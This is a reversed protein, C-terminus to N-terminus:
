RPLIITFTSGQGPQSTVKIDGGHELIIRRCISLGLGTGTEKTTYFAEFIQQQTQEDMGCGTDTIEIRASDPHESITVTLKGNASMAQFANRCINIMVEKLNELCGNIYIPHDPLSSIISIKLLLSEGYLFALVDSVLRVADLQVFPKDHPRSLTLFDSVILNIHDIESSILTCYESVSLTSRREVRSHILQAFGKIATLPNRIEHVTGAAIQGIAALTELHQVRREREREKNLNKFIGIAGSIKGHENYFPAVTYEINVNFCDLSITTKQLQRAIGYRVAQYFSIEDASSLRCAQWATSINLGTITTRSIGFLEEAGKNFIKVCCNSDVIIVGAPVADWILDASYVALYDSVCIGGYHPSKVSGINQQLSNSTNSM